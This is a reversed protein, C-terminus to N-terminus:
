ANKGPEPLLLAAPSGDGCCIPCCPHDMKTMDQSGRLKLEVKQMLSLLLRQKGSFVPQSDQARALPECREVLNAPSPKVM